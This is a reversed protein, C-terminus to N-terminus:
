PLQFGFLQSSDGLYIVAVNNSVAVNIDWPNLDAGDFYISGLTEKTPGDLIDLRNEKAVFFLIADSNRFQRDEHEELVVTYSSGTRVTDAPPYPIEKEDPWKYCDLLAVSGSNTDIETISRSSGHDYSGTLYVTEDSFYIDYSDVGQYVYGWLQKGNHPDYAFLTSEGGFSCDPLAQDNEVPAHELSNVGEYSGIFFKDDYLRMVSIDPVHAEWITNGTVADLSILSNTQSSWFVVSKDDPTFFEVWVKHPDDIDMEKVWLLAVGDTDQVTRVPVSEPPFDMSEMFAFSENMTSIFRSAAFGFALLIVLVISGIIALPIIVNKKSSPKSEAEAKIEAEMEAKAEAKMAPFLHEYAITEDDPKNLLDERIAWEPPTERWIYLYYYMPMAIYPMFFIGVGLIIRVIESATLNKIIHIIYFGMLGFQMIATLCHLPFIYGFNLFPFFDANDTPMMGFPFLFIGLIFIVPYILLWITSIGVIIKIPRNIKMAINEGM